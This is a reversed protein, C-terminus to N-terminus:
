LEHFIILTRGDYGEVARSVGSLVMQHFVDSISFYVVELDHVEHQRDMDEVVGMVEPHLRLRRPQLLRM